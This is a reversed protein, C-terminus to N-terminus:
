QHKRRIRIPHNLLVKEAISGDMFYITAEDDTAVVGTVIRWKENWWITSGVSLLDVVTSQSRVAGNHDAELQTILMDVDTLRAAAIAVGLPGWENGAERLLEVLRADTENTMKMRKMM